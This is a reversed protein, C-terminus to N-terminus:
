DTWPPAVAGVYAMFNNEGEFVMIPQLFLQPSLSDFYALYSSTIMIQSEQPLSAFYARGAKLEAFMQESTKLKYIADSNPNIPWYTYEVQLIRRDVRRSGSIIFSVVGGKRDDRLVPLGDYKKRFLVVKVADATSQSTAPVLENGRLKLYQIEPKVTDVDPHNIGLVQLFALAENAAQSPNPIEKESFLALDHVFNYSYTFHRTVIDMQITRLPNRPDVWRYVTDTIKRPTATFGVHAVFTQADSLSLLNVQSKPMFFIRATGSAEPVEGTITQLSFTLTSSPSASEPFVLAPLKGFSNTPKPQPPPLARIIASIIISFLIRLIIFAVFGITGWYIIKRSYYATETLTAM